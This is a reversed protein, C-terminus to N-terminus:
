LVHLSIIQTINRNAHRISILSPYTLLNNNADFRCNKIM